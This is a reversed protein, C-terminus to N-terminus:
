GRDGLLQDLTIRKQKLAPLLIDNWGRQFLGLFENKTRFSDGQNVERWGEILYAAREFFDVPETISLVMLFLDHMNNNYNWQPALKVLHKALTTYADKIPKKSPNNVGTPELLRWACAM